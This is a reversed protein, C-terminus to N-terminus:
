SVEEFKGTQTVSVLWGHLSTLDLFSAEQQNRTVVISSNKAAVWPDRQQKVRRALVCYWRLCRLYVCGPGDTSPCVWTFTDHASGGSELMM